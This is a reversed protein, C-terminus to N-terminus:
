LTLFPIPQFVSATTKGGEEDIVRRVKPKAEATEPLAKVPVVIPTSITETNVPTDANLPAM